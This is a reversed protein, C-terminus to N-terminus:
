KNYSIQKQQQEIQLMIETMVRDWVRYRAM